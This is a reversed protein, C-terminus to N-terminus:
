KTVEGTEDIMLAQQGARPSFVLSYPVDHEKCQEMHFKTEAILQRAVDKWDDGKERHYASHTSLGSAVEDMKMRGERGRDITIDRLPVFSVKWWEVGEPPLPLRGAKMEKALTYVWVRRGWEELMEQRRRIWRSAVEMVFRVGASNLHSIKWLVEIPLGLGVAIDNILTEWLVVQEPAPRNDHLIKLTEGPPLQPIQSGGWVQAVDFEGAANPNQSKVIAGPMGAQSKQLAATARERIAAFLAANKIASKVNAWIEVIDQSHNIGHALPPIARRNGVSDFSGFYICRDAPIVTTDTKNKAVSYYTHRGEENILVGDHWDGDLREKKPMRIQHSEYFAFMAAGSKSETLVTLLDGDRLSQCTLMHQASLFNFKGARDFTSANGAVRWFAKEAMEAWEGEVESQPRQAGVLTAANRIFGKVFGVNAALWRIRRILEQHSFSDLEDRTELTPWFLQGRDLSLNAGSYGSYAEPAQITDAAEAMPSPAPSSNRNRKRKAM